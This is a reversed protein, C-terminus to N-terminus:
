MSPISSSSALSAANKWSFKAPESVLRTSLKAECYSSKTSTSANRMTAFTRGSAKADTTSHCNSGRRTRTRSPMIATLASATAGSIRRRCASTSARSAAHTRSDPWTASVSLLM